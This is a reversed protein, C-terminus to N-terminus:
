PVPRSLPDVPAPTQQIIKRITAAVVGADEEHALHGLGHLRMIETDARLRRVTEADGPPVTRDNTGVILYLNRELTRLERELGALDWNTMMGLAGSIHSPHRFLRAYYDIQDRPLESGTSALLRAVRAEDRGQWAFLRPVVPNFFMWKAISPFLTRGIGDFPLLAANVGIISKPAILQDLAMRVLIAAGASHGVVYDPSVDLHDLLDNLSGAMAQLSPEAQWLSTTFGHAPLDPAIVRYERSLEPLLWRWSHTAAGTGHALLVVPPAPGAIRPPPAAEQVHWRIPGVQVFRSHARNPWDVGDISWDPREKHKSPRVLTTM